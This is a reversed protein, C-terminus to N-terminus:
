LNTASDVVRLGFDSIRRRVIWPSRRSRLHILNRLEGVVLSHIKFSLIIIASVGHWPVIKDLHHLHHVFPQIVLSLVPPM